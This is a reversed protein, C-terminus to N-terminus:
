HIIHADPNHLVYDDILRLINDRNEYFEMDLQNIDAEYRDNQCFQDYQSWRQERDEAPMSSPFWAMASSLLEYTVEAKIAKLGAKISHSFDGISNRFFQDFGGNQIEAYFRRLLYVLRAESTLRHFVEDRYIGNDDYICKNVLRVVELSPEAANIAESFKM